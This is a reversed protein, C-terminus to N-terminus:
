VIIRSAHGHIMNPLTNPSHWAGLVNSINKIQLSRFRTPVNYRSCFVVNTTETWVRQVKGTATLHQENVEGENAYLKNLKTKLPILIERDKTKQTINQLDNNTM